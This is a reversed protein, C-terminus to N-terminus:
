YANNTKIIELLKIKYHVPMHPPVIFKSVYPHMFGGDGYNYDSHSVVLRTEGVKMNRVSINIIETVPFLNNGILFTVQDGSENIPFFQRGPVSDVYSPNTEVYYAYLSIKVSDGSSITDAMEEGTAITKYYVPPSNEFYMTDFPYGLMHMYTLMQLSDYLDINDIVEYLKIDYIVPQYDYYAQDYPFLMLAADGESMFRIAKSFGTFTHSVPLRIPGYIIDKRFLNANRSDVERTADFVGAEPNRGVYDIVIFNQNSNVKQGNRFDTSDTIKVYINEGINEDETFGYEEKLENFARDHQDIQEQLDDKLCSTMLGAVLVPLLFGNKIKM